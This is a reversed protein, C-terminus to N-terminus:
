VTRWASRIECLTRPGFTSFVLHGNPKCIRYMEQIAGSVNCWQIAANSFVIDACNADLPTEELDCCHFEAGPVRAQAVEIMGPAIDIGILDFRNERELKNLAWGTGCGLDVLNGTAKAPIERILRKAMENQLQAADDYTAAARSFQRAIQDKALKM